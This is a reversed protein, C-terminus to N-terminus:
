YLSCIYGQKQAEMPNDVVDPQQEKVEIRDQAHTHNKLVM